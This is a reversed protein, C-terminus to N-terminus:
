LSDNTKLDEDCIRQFEKVFRGIQNGSLISHHAEITLPITEDEKTKPEGWVIRPVFDDKGNNPNTMSNYHGNVHSLYVADPRYESPFISERQKAEKTIKTLNEIFKDLDPDYDIDCFNFYDKNARSPVIISICSKDFQVLKGDVMRLRFNDNSNVAKAIAYAVLTNTTTGKDKALKKLNKINVEVTTGVFPNKFQLFRNYVERGPWNTMDITKYEPVACFTPNKTRSIYPTSNQKNQTVIQKKQQFSSCFNSTMLSINM